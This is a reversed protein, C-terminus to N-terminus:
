SESLGPILSSVSHSLPTIWWTSPSSSWISPLISTQNAWSLIWAEVCPDRPEWMHSWGRGGPRARSAWSLGTRKWEGAHRGVQLGSAQQGTAKPAEWNTGLLHTLLQEGRNGLCKHRHITVSGIIHQSPTDLPGSILCMSSSHWGEWKGIMEGWPLKNVECFRKRRIGKHTCIPGYRLVSIPTWLFLMHSTHLVAQSTHPASSVGARQTQHSIKQADRNMEKKVCPLTQKKNM